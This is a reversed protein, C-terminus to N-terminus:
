VRDKLFHILYQAVASQSIGFAKAIKEQTWGLKQLVQIAELRESSHPGRFLRGQRSQLALLDAHSILQLNELANNSKDGDLHIVDHGSPIESVWVQFVLRHLLQKGAYKLGKSLGVYHFGNKDKYGTTTKKPAYSSRWVRGDSSIAYHESLDTFKWTGGFRSSLFSTDAM